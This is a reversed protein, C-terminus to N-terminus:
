RGAEAKLQVCVWRDDNAPEDETGWGKIFHPHSLKMSGLAREVVPSSKKTEMSRNSSIITVKSIVPSSSEFIEDSGNIFLGAYREREERERKEREEREKKEREEREKKEREEREKKERAKRAVCADCDRYTPENTVVWNGCHRPNRCNREHSYTTHGCTFEDYVGWCM